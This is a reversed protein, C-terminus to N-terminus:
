KAGMINNYVEMTKSVSDEISFNKMAKKRANGSLHTRQGPDKSLTSIANTLANVDKAPVLLGNTGNDILEALGGVDSAICARGAAMAEMLSLGLGERLSPLCFIDMLELYKELNTNGATLFVNKELGLGNIQRELADKEPGDGIILLQVGPDEEIVNKFASILFKYGKVSSLRGVTGIILKDDALGLDDLLAHDRNNELKEFRQTDIGNYVLEVREPAVNFDQTLHASVSKSIAIVKSGWCPLLVRSLRKHEFFGHCTSIFPVGSLKGALFSLVQTLRTQSHVIDFKGEKLLRVLFPLTKWMKFGFESKSKIDATIHPVGRAELGSELDGGSSMVTVDVGREKLQGALSLTYIGIGGANMHTTLLLIKM